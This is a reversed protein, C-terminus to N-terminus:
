CTLPKINLVKATKRDITIIDGPKLDGATLPKGKYTIKKKM